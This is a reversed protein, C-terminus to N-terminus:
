FWRLHKKRFFIKRLFLEDYNNPLTRSLDRFYKRFFINVKPSLVGEQGCFVKPFMSISANLLSSLAQAEIIWRFRSATWGFFFRHHYSIPDPSAIECLDKSIPFIFFGSFFVRASILSVTEKESVELMTM